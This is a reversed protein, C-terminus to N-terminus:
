SLDASPKLSIAAKSSEIHNEILNERAFDRDLNEFLDPKEATDAFLAVADPDDFVVIPMTSAETGEDPLWGIYQDLRFIVKEVGPEATRSFWVKRYSDAGSIIM